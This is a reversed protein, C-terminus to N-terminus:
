ASDGSIDVDGDGGISAGGDSGSVMVMVASSALASNSASDIVEARLAGLLQISRASGPSAANLVGGSAAAAASSASRRSYTPYAAPGHGRRRAGDVAREFPAVGFALALAGALPRDHQAARTVRRRQREAVADVGEVVEQLRSEAVVRAEVLCAVGDAEGAVFFPAADDDLAAGHVAIRAVTEPARALGAAGADAL